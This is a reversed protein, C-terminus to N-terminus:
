DADGGRRGPPAIIPLCLWAAIEQVDATVILGCLVLAEDQRADCFVTAPYNDLGVFVLPNASRLAPILAGGKVLHELVRHPPEVDQHDPGDVPKPPTNEM